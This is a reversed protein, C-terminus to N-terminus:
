SFPITTIFFQRLRPAPIFLAGFCLFIPPIMFAMEKSFLALIFMFLSLLYAYIKNNLSYRILLMLSLLFFLLTLLDSRNKIYAVSEVHIPHAAFIAATAFPAQLVWSANFGSAEQKQTGGTLLVLQVVFLYVLLVNLIHLLLNTLHYGIPNLKWLLFGLCLNSGKNAQVM